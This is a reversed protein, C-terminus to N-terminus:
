KKQKKAQIEAIKLRMDAATRLEIERIQKFVTDMIELTHENNINTGILSDKKIQIEDESQKLIDLVEKIENKTFGAKQLNNAIKKKLESRKKMIEDTENKKIFGSKKGLDEFLSM